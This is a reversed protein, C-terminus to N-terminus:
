WNLVHQRRLEVYPTDFFWGSLFQRGQDEKIEERMLKEVAGRVLRQRKEDLPKPRRELWWVCAHHFLWWLAESRVFVGPAELVCWAVVALPGTVTLSAAISDWM